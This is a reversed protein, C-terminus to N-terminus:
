VPRSGARRTRQDPRLTRIWGSCFDAFFYDGEYEARSCSPRPTTSPAGRSRAVRPPPTATMLTPSSPSRRVSSREAMGEHVPWGFNAGQRM